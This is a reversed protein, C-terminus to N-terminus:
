AGGKNQLAGNNARAILMRTLEELQDCLRDIRRGLEQIDKERRMECKARCAECETRTMMDGSQKVDQLKLAMLEERLANLSATLEADRKDREALYRGLLLKLLWAGFAIGSAGAVGTSIASVNMVEPEM